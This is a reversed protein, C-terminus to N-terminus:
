LFKGRGTKKISVMSENCLLGAGGDVVLEQGTIWSSGSGLLFDCAEAIERDQGLRGFPNARRIKRLRGSQRGGPWSKKQFTGPSIVNVRIGRRALHYAYYRCLGLLGAKAAHYGAGQEPAVGGAATSGVLVIAGGRRRFLGPAEALLQHCAGLHTSIEHQWSSGTGRHRASFLVGDLWGLRHRIERLGRIFKLNQTVDCHFHLDAWPLRAQGRSMVAVRAGREHFLEGTVAGLGRSGGIVLIKRTQRM